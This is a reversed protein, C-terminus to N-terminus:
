PLPVQCLKTTGIFIGKDNRVDFAPFYLDRRSPFAECVIQSVILLVGGAEDPLTGSGYTRECVPMTGNDFRIADENTDFEELRVAGESPFSHVEIGGQFFGISHPTLNRFTNM